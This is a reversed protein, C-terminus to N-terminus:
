NNTKSTRDLEGDLLQRYMEIEVELKTKLSLLAEFDHMQNEMNSRCQALEDQLSVLIQALKSLEINYRGETDSLNKGLSDNTKHLTDREIELAQIQRRLETLETKTTELAETNMKVEQSLSDSKDKYWAETQRKNEDVLKEYQSRINAIHASLDDGKPADVEVMVNSNAIQAKLIAVDENHNKCLYAREERLSEVQSELQMRALNTDDIVKRLGAIDQEVSMRMANEAEFKIKFDDAALRANDVQLMLKANELNKDELQKKLDTLPKLLANWDREIPGRKSVIEHVRKELENNSETLRSVESLYDALRQNLDQMAERQNVAGGGAVMAVTSARSLDLNPRLSGPSSGLRSVSIRSGKGGAGGHMSSASSMSVSRQPYYVSGGGSRVSFNQMRHTM